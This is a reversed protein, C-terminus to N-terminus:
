LLGLKQMDIVKPVTGFGRGARDIQEAMYHHIAELVLSNILQEGCNSCTLAPAGLVRVPHDRVLEDIEVNEKKLAAGCCCTDIM